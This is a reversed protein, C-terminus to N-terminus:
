IFNLLKDICLGNLNMLFLPFPFSGVTVIGSTKLNSVGRNKGMFVSLKDINNLLIFAYRIPDFPAFSWVTIQSLARLM